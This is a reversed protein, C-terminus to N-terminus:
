LFFHSGLHSACLFHTQLLFQHPRHLMARGLLYCHLQRELPLRSAPSVNSTLAPLCADTERRIESGSCVESLVGCFPCLGRSSDISAISQRGQFRYDAGVVVTDRTRRGMNGTRSHAKSLVVPIHVHKLAQKRYRAQMIIFSISCQPSLLTNVICM